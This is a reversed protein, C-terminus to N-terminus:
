GTNQKEEQRKLSYNMGVTNGGTAWGRTIRQRQWNTVEKWSLVVTESRSSINIIMRSHGGSTVLMVEDDVFVLSSSRLVGFHLVKMVHNFFFGFKCHPVM